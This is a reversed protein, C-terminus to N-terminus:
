QGLDDPQAAAMDDAAHRRILFDAGRFLSPGLTHNDVGVPAEGRFRESQRLALAHV